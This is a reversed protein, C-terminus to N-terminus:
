ERKVTEQLKSSIKKRKRQPEEKVSQMTGASEKSVPAIALNVFSTAFCQTVVHIHKDGYTLAVSYFPYQSCFHM